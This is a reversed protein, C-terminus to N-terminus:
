NDEKESKPCEELWKKAKAHWAQRPDFAYVTNPPIPQCWREKFLAKMETREKALFPEKRLLREVM